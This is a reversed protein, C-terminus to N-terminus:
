WNILRHKGAAMVFFLLAPSLMWVYIQPPDM